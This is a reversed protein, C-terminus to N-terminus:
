IGRHWSGNIKEWIVAKKWTGSIKIFLKGRKWSGSQKTRMTKQNGKLTITFSKSAEYTNATKIWVKFTASNQNGYQKYINDLEEDSFNFTYSSGSCNRYGGTIRASDNSNWIGIQLSSGSPNTYSVTLSNGHDINPASSIRAIDKTTGYITGSETWLQSDARRIRTKISYQTNTSLGSITYTPYGNAGTWNGNNLKYQLGDCQVDAGWRVTISNLGTSDVKHETFTAYRPITPPTVSTSTSGEGIRTTDTNWYGSVSVAGCTGDNNHNVVVDHTGLYVSSAVGSSYNISSVSKNSTNGNITISGYTTYNTYAYYSSGDFDLWLDARITSRNNATDQSLVYADLRLTYHEGYSGSMNGM